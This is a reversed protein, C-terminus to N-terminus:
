LWIFMLVAWGVMALGVLVLVSWGFAPILVKRTATAASGHVIVPAGGTEPLGRIISSGESTLGAIGVVTCHDLRDLVWMKIMTTESPDLGIDQHLQTTQGPSYVHETDPDGFGGFTLGDPVQVHVRTRAEEDELDFAIAEVVPTGAPIWAKQAGQQTRVTEEVYGRAEWAICPKANLPARLIPEARAFGEVVCKRGPILRGLPRRRFVPFQQFTRALSRAAMFVVAAGVAAIMLSIFFGM